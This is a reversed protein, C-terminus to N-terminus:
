AAVIRDTDKPVVALYVPMRAGEGIDGILAYLRTAQETDHEAADLDGLEQGGLRSDCASGGGFGISHEDIADAVLALAEELLPLAGV